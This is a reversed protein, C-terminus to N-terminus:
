GTGRRSGTSLPTLLTWAVIAHDTGSGRWPLGFSACRGDGARAPHTPSFQTMQCMCACCNTSVQM